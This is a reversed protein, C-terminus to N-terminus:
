SNQSSLGQLVKNSHKRSIEWQKWGNSSEPNFTYSPFAKSVENAKSIINLYFKEEKNSPKKTTKYKSYFDKFLLISLSHFSEVNDQLPEIKNNNIFNIYSRLLIFRYNNLSFRRDGMLYLRFKLDSYRIETLRMRNLPAEENLQFYRFFLKLYKEQERTYYFDNPISNNIFSISSYLNKLAIRDSRLEKPTKKVFSKFDEINDCEQFSIINNIIIKEYLEKYNGCGSLYNPLSEKLHFENYFDTILYRKFEYYAKPQKDPYKSLYNKTYNGHLKGFNLTKSWIKSLNNVVSFMHGFGQDYEDIFEIKLLSDKVEIIGSNDNELIKRNRNKNKKVVNLLDFLFSRDSDSLEEQNLAKLYLEDIKEETIVLPAKNQKLGIIYTANSDNKSQDCKTLKVGVLDEPTMEIEIEHNRRFDYRRINLESIDAKKGEKGKSEFWLKNEELIKNIKDKEM